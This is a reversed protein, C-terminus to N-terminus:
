AELSEQYLTMQMQWALCFGQITTTTTTMTTTTTTTTMMMMMQMERM